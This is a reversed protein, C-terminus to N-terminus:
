DFTKWFDPECRDGIAKAAGRLSFRTGTGDEFMVYVSDFKRLRDRVYEFNAACVRCDSGIEGNGDMSVTFPDQGNFTLTVSSYPRPQKGGLQFSISTIPRGFGSECAVAISNGPGKEVSAEHVGQGFGDRWEDSLAPSAVAVLAVTLGLGSLKQAFQLAM